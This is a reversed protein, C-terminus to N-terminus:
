CRSGTWSAPRASSCCCRGSRALPVGGYMSYEDLPYADLYTVQAGAMMM